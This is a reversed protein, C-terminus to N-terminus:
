FLWTTVQGKTDIRRVFIDDSVFTTGDPSICMDHSFNFVARELPGDLPHDAIWTSKPIKTGSVPVVTAGAEDVLMLQLEDWGRQEFVMLRSIIFIRGKPDVAMASVGDLHHKSPSVRTVKKGFLVRRYTGDPAIRWVLTYLDHLPRATTRSGGAVLEGHAADWTLNDLFPQNERPVSNDCLVDPGLVTSVEGKPTIKRLACGRQDPVWLNGDPDEVPRAPENFLAGGGEGDGFGSIGKTGDNECERPSGAVRSVFGEPTVALVAASSSVLLRGDATLTFPGM